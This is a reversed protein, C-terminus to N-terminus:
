DAMVFSVIVIINLQDIENWIYLQPNQIPMSVRVGPDNQPM